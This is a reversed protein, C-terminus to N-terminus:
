LDYILMVLDSTLTLHTDYDTDSLIDTNDIMNMDTHLLNIYVSTLHSILTLFWTLTLSYYILYWGTNCCTDTNLIMNIDTHLLDSIFM